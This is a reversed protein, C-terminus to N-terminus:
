PECTKKPCTCRGRSSPMKTMMLAPNSTVLVQGERRMVTSPFLGLTFGSFFDTNGSWRIYRM